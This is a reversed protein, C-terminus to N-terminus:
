FHVKSARASGLSHMQVSGRERARGGSGVSGGSVSSGSYHSSVSGRAVYPTFPAIVISGPRTAGTGAGYIQGHEFQASPRPGTFQQQNAYLALVKDKLSEEKSRSSCFCAAALVAVLIACGVAVGTIMPTNSSASASGASSLGVSAPNTTPAMTARQTTPFSTAVSPAFTPSSVM